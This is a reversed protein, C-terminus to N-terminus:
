RWRSAATRARRTSAKARPARSPRRWSARTRATRSLRQLRPVPRVQRGQDGDAQRVQRLDVPPDPEVGEKLNIMEKAARKLDKEFKKYFSGLTKKYNSTGEEIKDLDEELNRTYEVDLIDDFAPSLLEDVLMRGLM